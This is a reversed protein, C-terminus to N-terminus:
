VHAVVDAGARERHLILEPKRFQGSVPVRHVYVGNGRPAGDVAIDDHMADIKQRMQTSLHSRVVEMRSVLTEFEARVRELRSKTEVAPTGLMLIIGELGAASWAVLRSREISKATAEDSPKGDGGAILAEDAM